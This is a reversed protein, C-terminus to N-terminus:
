NGDHLPNGLEEISRTVELAVRTRTRLEPSVKAVGPKQVHLLPLEPEWNPRPRPVLM